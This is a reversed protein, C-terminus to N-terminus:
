WWGKADGYGYVFSGVVIAAAVGIGVAGGIMAARAVVMWNISGGNIYEQEVIDIPQFKPSYNV